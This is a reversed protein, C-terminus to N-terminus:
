KKFYIYDEDNLNIKDYGGDYSGFVHGYGDLRIYEEILEEIGNDLMLEGLESFGEAKQLAQVCNYPINCNDAIFWDNFCGLIYEDEKYLDIAIDLAQNEKIFRFDDVEFDDELNEINESLEYKDIGLNEALQLLEKIKSYDM